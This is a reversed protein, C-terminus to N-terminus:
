AWKVKYLVHLHLVAYQVFIGVVKVHNAHCQTNFGSYFYDGRWDRDDSAIKSLETAQADFTMIVLLSMEQCIDARRPWELDRRSALWQGILRCLSLRLYARLYSTAVFSINEDGHSWGDCSWKSASCLRWDPCLLSFVAADGFTLLHIYQTCAGCSFLLYVRHTWRLRRASSSRLAILRLWWACAAVQTQV